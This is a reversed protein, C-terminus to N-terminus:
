WSRVFMMYIVFTYRLFCIVNLVIGIRGLVTKLGALNVVMLVMSAVWSFFGFAMMMYGYTMMFAMTGLKENGGTQEIRAYALRSAIYPMAIMIVAIVGFIFSCVTLGKENPKMLIEQKTDKM